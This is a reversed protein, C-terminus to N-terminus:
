AGEVQVDDAGVRLWAAALPLFVWEEPKDVEAVGLAKHRDTSIPVFVRPLKTTAGPQAEFEAWLLRKESSGFRERWALAAQTLNDATPQPLAAACRMQGTKPHYFLGADIGLHKLLIALLLTQSPQNGIRYLLTHIPGRVRNPERNSAFPIGQVFDAFFRAMAFRGEESTTEADSREALLRALPGLPEWSHAAVACLLRQYAKVADQKLLNGDSGSPMDEGGDAAWVTEPGGWITQDDQRFAPNDLQKETWALDAAIQPSDPSYFRSQAATKRGIGVDLMAETGDDLVWRHKAWVLDTVTGDVSYWCRGLDFVDGEGEESGAGYRGRQKGGTASGEPRLRSDLWTLARKRAEHDREREDDRAARQERRRGILEDASGWYDYRARLRDHYLVRELYVRALRLLLEVGDRHIAQAAGNGGLHPDYLYFGDRPGLAYDPAPDDGEIHLAVQIDVSAGRYMSPLVARMAAAILRADRLELRPCDEDAVIDLDPNAVIGLAVTRVTDDDRELHGDGQPMTMTGPVELTGDSASEETGGVKEAGYLIRQRVTLTHPDLRCTALHHTRCEVPGLSVAVPFDGIFVPEAGFDRPSSAEAAAADREGPMRAAAGLPRFRTRRRPSSLDDNLFPEVLIDHESVPGDESAEGTESAAGVVVYRGQATGFIRGPYYLHRASERDTHAILTLNTRDRIAVRPGPPMEVQEVRPPLLAHGNAAAFEEESTAVARSPVRVHMQNEYGVEDRDLDTRSESVLLGADALRGLTRVTTNGFVDLIDAIETWTDVLDAALHAEVARGFPARVVPRPLTRVVDSLSSNPNLETLAMREDPDVVSVFAIPVPKDIRASEAGAGDVSPHFRLGARSLHDIERRVDSVHGALFVVCADQPIAADHQPEQELELSRRGAHREADGCKRYHWPLGLRECSEILDHVSLSEGSETKFDSLQYFLHYRGPEAEELAALGAADQSERRRSDAYDFVRIVADIGCLTRAWAPTDHMSDVGLVLTVPATEEGLQRVGVLERVRLTLRRFALQTHIEVPGCFAEVDDVVVLGLNKLVPAYTRPEALIGTVLQHLSTVVVDPVIGQSLDNVLASGAKRVRVTWRLTSPELTGRMRAAFADASAEDRTVVLTSRTHILAHNCAALMALTTKGSGDPALVLQNRHRMGSEDTMAAGSASLGLEGTTTPPDVHVYAQHSLTELVARQMETLRGDGPLIEDILPSVLGSNPSGGAIQLGEVKRPADFTYPEAVQLRVELDDLIDAWGTGPPMEPEEEEEPEEEAIHRHGSLSLHIVWSLWLVVSVAFMSGGMRYPAASLTGWSWALFPVAAVPLWVAWRRYTEDTRWLKRAGFWTRWSDLVGSADVRDALNQGLESGNVLRVIRAAWWWIFMWFALTLLAGMYPFRDLPLYWETEPRLGLLVYQWAPYGASLELQMRLLPDTLMGLLWLGGTILGAWMFSPGITAVVVSVDEEDEEDAEGEGKSSFLSKVWNIAGSVLWYILLAPLAIIFLLVAPLSFAIEQSFLSVSSKPDETLKKNLRRQMAWAVGFALLGVGLVVLSGGMAGINRTLDFLGAALLWARDVLMEIFTALMEFLTPTSDM